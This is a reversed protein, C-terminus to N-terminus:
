RLYLWAMVGALLVFGIAIQELALLGAQRLVTVCAETVSRKRVVIQFLVAGICVLGAMVGVGVAFQYMLDEM